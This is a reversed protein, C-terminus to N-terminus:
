FWIRYQYMFNFMTIFYNSRAASPPILLIRREAGGRYTVVFQKCM